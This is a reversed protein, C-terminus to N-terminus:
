NDSITESLKILLINKKSALQAAEILCSNRRTRRWPKPHTGQEASAAIRLRLAM